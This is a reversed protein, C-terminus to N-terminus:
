LDMPSVHDGKAKQLELLRQRQASLNKFVEAPTDTIERYVKEIRDLKALNEPIRVTFQEVYQQRTYDKKLVQKFLKALDEYKPLNGTPGEIADADGHVRMEAWKIWVSKDLKGNLYQGQKNKLFYNTAFIRPRKVTKGFDLNNQVYKGVPIALFQLISMVDFNRVGTAGITAGTSESELSAGYCVIGHAWDFSEQVPVWTDSDRGGYFIGEIAVGKPNNAQEDLNALYSLSITYRANKDSIPIVKGNPGIKGQTWQGHSNKGETPTPVGMGAWYPKGDKVLVNSFIVEGQKNLVNWIVPDDKANVDEVIGFIGKEVNAARIQGDIIKFYALDDGIITEGPVMATSTKGCASPYAGSFYTKRGNPGKVGMLFMHEALWGERDAKRIALRLALKKLGVTNGAYQTNVTYVMDEAIDIYIRRKDHDISTLDPGVRGASHLFRFFDGSGSIRRFQAYGPRYLLMESHAVYGSDTIQACPISFQSETPGLSLFCLIMTRDKMSGKLYGRIEALGEERGTANLSKGLTVGPPLLYKTAKPDRALDSASDFHITHGPTSLPAEEHNELALQRIRAIDAQSDDFVVVKAPQCLEIADALFSELKANKLALLKELSIKDLKSAFLEAYQTM